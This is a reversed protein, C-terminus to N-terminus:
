TGPGPTCDLTLALVQMSPCQLQLKTAECMRRAELM